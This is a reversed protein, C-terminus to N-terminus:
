LVKFYQAAPMVSYGVQEYVRRAPVHGPDGGIGIVAVRMGADRLWATAHDTLARGLGQRQAAPDVALMAM